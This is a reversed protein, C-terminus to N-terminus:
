NASNTGNKKSAVIKNLDEVSRIAFSKDNDRERVLITANRVWVYKFGSKKALIKAERFLAKNKLTLHENLYVSVSAGSIGIQDSKISKANRYASLVNDRIIRSRFKVILNKPKTDQQRAHPVRHVSIIDNHSVPSNITSCISETITLLNENRKEPLNCVEINCQRAQQEMSDIKAELIAAKQEGSNSAIEHFRRVYEKHGAELTDLRTKMADYEDSIFNVSREIGEIQEKIDDFKEKLVVAM